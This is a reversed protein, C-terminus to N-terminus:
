PPLDPPHNNRGGPLGNEVSAWIGPGAPTASTECSVFGIASHNQCNPSSGSAEFQRRALDLRVLVRRVPSLGIQAEWLGEQPDGCFFIGPLDNRPIM